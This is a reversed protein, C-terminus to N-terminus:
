IFSKRKPSRIQVHFFFIWLHKRLYNVTCGQAIVKRRLAMVSILYNVVRIVVSLNNRPVQGESSYVKLAMNTQGGSLKPGGRFWLFGIVGLLWLLRLVVSLIFSSTNGM